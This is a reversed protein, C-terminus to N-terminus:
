KRLGIAKLHDQYADFRPCEKFEEGNNCYAKKDDENPKYHHADVDGSVLIPQAFCREKIFYICDVLDGRVHIEAYLIFPKEM